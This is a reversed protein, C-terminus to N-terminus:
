PFLYKLNPELLVGEKVPYGIQDGSKICKCVFQHAEEAASALKSGKMLKGLLVSAFLDGTGPYSRGTSSRSLIQVTKGECLVISQLYGPLPVSTIVSRHCGKEMLKEAIREIQKEDSFELCPEGTILCSETYNPTALTSFPLLEWMAQNYSDDFNMYFSGHDGMIPDFLVDAEQFNKLFQLVERVVQINGLYGIFIYDFTIQNNKFHEASEAVFSPLPMMVPKGFGGTHTSLIMTPVPCAEIGMVSFVPLINTMAAKGVSCLDHIVAVRKIPKM